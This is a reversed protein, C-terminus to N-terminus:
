AQLEHKSCEREVTRTRNQCFILNLSPRDTYSISFYRQHRCLRLNAITYYGLTCSIYRGCFREKTGGGLHFHYREVKSQQEQAVKMLHLQFETNITSCTLRPISNSINWSFQCSSPHICMCIYIYIYTRFHM